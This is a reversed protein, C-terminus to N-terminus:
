YKIIGTGYQITSSFGIQSWIKKRHIRCFYERIWLVPSFLGGVLTAFGPDRIWVKEMGFGPDLNKGLIKVWYITKLERSGSKKGMGSGPGLPDFLYRIGSKGCFERGGGM